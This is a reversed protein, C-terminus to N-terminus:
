VACGCIDQITLIDLELSQASLGSPIMSRMGHTIPHHSVTHRYGRLRYKGSVTPLLTEAVFETCDFPPEQPAADAELRQKPATSGLGQMVAPGSGNSSSVPRQPARPLPCGVGIWERRVHTRQRPEARPQEAASNICWLGVRHAKPEQAASSSTSCFQSSLVRQATQLSM